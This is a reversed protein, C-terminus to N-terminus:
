FPSLGFSLPQTKDSDQKLLPIAYDLRLPGLPSDWAIGAGTSVRPSITNGALGPVSGSTSNVGWLSGADAFVTARLGTTETVRPIDILAEATFAYYATGGLADKNTSLTDRPGIGRSSFGRVMDGGGYFMDLLSVESGGWGSITGGRARGMFTVSSGVPLYARVDATSRVYRVDGGVGAFDQAATALVGSTPRKKNDRTDYALSYGISSTNYTASNAGSVAEKIAASANEGVDYISNRSFKYNLGLDLEDTLPIGLRLQGGMKRTKYSSEEYYNLDKYFLDFGAAMRTGLFRPQTFGIDAQLRTLSGAVKFRLWQGNGLLNRETVSVDGIVGESTSYGAGFSLNITEDEVVVVTVAVKDESAGRKHTIDVTKFFGLAKVQTTARRLLFANIGDGEAFGLERRIVHDKTKTNGSIDIREVYIRPGEEVLFKLGITRSAPDRSPVIQLRASPKSQKSLAVMLKEESKEVLEQNFVDGARVALADRLLSTDVDPVSSEVSIAGFSYQAGEDITFTIAFTKSGPDFESQHQSVVVDAYGKKLYHRRLLERDFVLRDEDFSINSKMFDLWGSQTTMMVDRLQSESFARNGVFSISRVKNLEGENIVFALDVRGDSNPTATPEVSARYYGQRRYLDRLINADAQAKARSYPAGKKLQLAPELKDTSLESNGKLSITGVIPNEVVKVVVKSGVQEIRVDSFQGTAFLARMSQNARAADYSQGPAFLLHSRITDVAIRQNGEVEVAKIEAASAVASPILAAIQLGAAVLGIAALGSGRCRVARSVFACIARGLSFASMVETHGM